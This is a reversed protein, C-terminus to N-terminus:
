NSKLRALGEGSRRRREGSVERISEIALHNQRVIAKRDSGVLM